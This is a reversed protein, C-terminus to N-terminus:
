HRPVTVRLTLVENQRPNLKLARITTLTGNESLLSLTLDSSPLVSCFQASGRDDTTLDRNVDVLQERKLRDISTTVRQLWHLRVAAIAVPRSTAADLLVVRLTADRSNDGPCLRRVMENESPARLTFQRTAGEDLLFEVEAVRFGFADFESHEVVVSHPGPPVSDFEFRGASDVVAEHPLGMLRVRAWRMPGGSARAVSGSVVGPREFRELGYHIVLGGEEVLRLSHANGFASRLGGEESRAFQPMVLSWRKVIVAGTPLRLFQVQAGVRDHRLSPPLGLWELELLQLENTNADLWLTGSVESVPRGRVPEFTLGVLGTQERRGDRLGFCHDVLFAASLLADADPAFFETTLGDMRWFGSKSFADGSRSRFLPEGIGDRADYSHLEEGSIEFDDSNRQRTFRVLRAGTITEASSATLVSLSTRAAEWLAAVRVNDANRAICLSSDRVAVAPLSTFADLQVNVELVADASLTVAEIHARAGIRRFTLRFRGAGPARISYTGAQNTTTRRLPTVNAATGEIDLTVLAGVLPTNSGREIVSGRVTQAAAESTALIALVTVVFCPESMIPMRLVGKDGPGGDVTSSCSYGSSRLPYLTTRNSPGNRLEQTFRDTKTVAWDDFTM